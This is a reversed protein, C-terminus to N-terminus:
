GAMRATYGAGRIRELIEDVTVEDDEIDLVAGPEEHDFCIAYIGPLGDLADRVAQEDGASRLGDIHLKLQAM